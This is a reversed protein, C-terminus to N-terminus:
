ERPLDPRRGERSQPDTGLLGAVGHLWERPLRNQQRAPSHGRGVRRFSRGALADLVGAGRAHPGRREAVRHGTAVRWDGQSSRTVDLGAGLGQHRERAGGLAARGAACMGRADLTQRRVKPLRDVSRRRSCDARHWQRADIDRPDRALLELTRARAAVGDVQLRDAHERRQGGARRLRDRHRSERAHRRHRRTGLPAHLDLALGQARGRAAPVLRLCSSVKSPARRRSGTTTPSSSRTM